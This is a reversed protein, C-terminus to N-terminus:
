SFPDQKFNPLLIQCFGQVLLIDEKHHTKCELRSGVRYDQAIIDFINIQLIEVLPGSTLHM